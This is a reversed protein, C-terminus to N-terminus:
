REQVGKPLTGEVAKKKSAKIAADLHAAIEHRGANEALIKLLMVMTEIFMDLDTDSVGNAKLLKYISKEGSIPAKSAM